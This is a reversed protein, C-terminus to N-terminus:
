GDECMELWESLPAGPGVDDPAVEMLEDRIEAMPSGSLEVYRECLLVVQKEENSEATALSWSGVIVGGWLATVAVWKAAGVFANTPSAPGVKAHARQPSPGRPSRVTHVFGAFQAVVAMLTFAWFWLIFSSGHGADLLVFAATHLWALVFLTYAQRQIFKWGRRLWRQSWDNSIAALILAYGLAILGVWNAAGWLDTGLNMGFSNRESLFPLWIDDDPALLIVVHLSATVFMGIGLERAWPVVPRLRPALRAVAGLVLILCLLILSTDALVVHDLYPPGSDDSGPWVLLLMLVVILGVAAVHRGLPPGRRVAGQRSTAIQVTEVEDTGEWDSHTAGGFRRM